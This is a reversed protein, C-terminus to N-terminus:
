FCPEFATLPLAQLGQGRPSARLFCVVHSGLSGPPLLASQACHGPALPRDGWSPCAAGTKRNERHRLKEKRYFPSIAETRPQASGPMLSPFDEEWWSKPTEKLAGRWPPASRSPHPHGLVVSHERTQCPHMAGKCGGRPDCPGEEDMAPWLGRVEWGTGRQCGQEEGCAQVCGPLQLPHAGQHTGRGGQASTHDGAQIEPEPKELHAEGLTGAM